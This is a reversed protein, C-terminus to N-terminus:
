HWLMAVIIIWENNHRGGSATVSLKDKRQFLLLRLVAHHFRNAAQSQVRSCTSTGDAVWQGLLSLAEPMGSCVKRTSPKPWGARVWCSLANLSFGM